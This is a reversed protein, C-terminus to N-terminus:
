WQVLYVTVATCTATEGTRGTCGPAVSLCMSRAYGSLADRGRKRKCAADGEGDTM